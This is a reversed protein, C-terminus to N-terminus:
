TLKLNLDNQNINLLEKIQIWDQKLTELFVLNQFKWKLHHHSQCHLDVLEELLKWLFEDCDLNM